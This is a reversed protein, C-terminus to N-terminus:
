QTNIESYFIAQVFGSSVDHVYFRIYYDLDGTDGPKRCPLFRLIYWQGSVAAVRDKFNNRHPIGTDQLPAIGIHDGYLCDQIIYLNLSEDITVRGYFPRYKDEHIISYGRGYPTLNITVPDGWYSPIGNNNVETTQKSSVVNIQNYQAKLNMGIGTGVIFGLILVIKKM